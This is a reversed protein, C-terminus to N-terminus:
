IFDLAAKLMYRYIFSLLLLLLLLPPIMFLNLGVLSHYGTKDFFSIIRDKSLFYLRPLMLFPSDLGSAIRVLFSVSAM